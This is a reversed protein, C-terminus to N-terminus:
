ADEKNMYSAMVRKIWDVPQNVLEDDVMIPPLYLLDQGPFAVAMRDKATRCHRDYNNFPWNGGSGLDAMCVGYGFGRSMATAGIFFAARALDLPATDIRWMTTCSSESVRRNNGLSTGVWLEVPRHEVLLRTLALLTVGRKQVTKAGIGASTTLDMYIALPANEKMMRERRRMCQPHGALFAPVNPVAGVVDDINRWGRSMPVQDEIQALFADSEAVLDADGIQVKTKFEAYNDGTWRGDIRERMNYDHKAAHEAVEGSELLLYLDKHGEWKSDIKNM